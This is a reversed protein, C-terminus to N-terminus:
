KKTPRKQGFHCKTCLVGNTYGTVPKPMLYRAYDEEVAMADRFLQYVQEVDLTINEEELITNVVQIGFSAHLTEDRLIYQFQEATGRMLNLRQLAFVPTFGNFFWVGEFIAAFFIYSMIFENLQDPDTLDMDTRMVPELIDNAMKIKAAIEPVVRYRNYVESQDLGLTEICHQYTWTNGSVAVKGNYRVIIKTSPVGVSYVYGDYAEAGKTLTEGAIVASDSFIIFGKEVGNGPEVVDSRYGSLAAISQLKNIIDKNGDPLDVYRIVPDTPVESNIQWETISEIIDRGLSQTINTVKLWSLDRSLSESPDLVITVRDGVVTYKTDLKVAINILKIVDNNNTLNFTYSIDGNKLAVGDETQESLVFYALALDEWPTLYENVGHAFGAVPFNSGGPQLDEALTIWHEDKVITVTRHNPTVFSEYVGSTFSVLEGSFHDKTIGLHDVFEISRDDNYQAIRTTDSIDRFDVFGDGTLIETGEKYCHLAEEYVQRAQYIQLEPASMKEMVALGINRMALIDSTTLYALVNDYLHKQESSMTIRYDSVDKTMSVDMPTWHNKNATLFINWAWKYKFPALQNIDTLGNIVRKDEPKIPKLNMNNLNEKNQRM